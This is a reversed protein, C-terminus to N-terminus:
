PAPSEEEDTPMGTLAACIHFTGATVAAATFLAAPVRMRGNRFTLAMCGAGLVLETIGAALLKKHGTTM